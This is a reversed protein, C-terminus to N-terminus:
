IYYYIHTLLLGYVFTVFLIQYNKLFIMWNWTIFLVFYHAVQYLSEHVLVPRRGLPQPGSTPSLWIHDINQRSYCSSINFINQGTLIYGNRVECEWIKHIKRPVVPEQRGHFNPWLLLNCRPLTQYGWQRHSVILTFVANLMWFTERNPFGAGTISGNLHRM